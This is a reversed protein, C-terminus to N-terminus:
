SYGVLVGGHGEGTLQFGSAAYSGILSLMASRTGDSVTLMGGAFGATPTAAFDLATLDLMDGAIFGAVPMAFLGAQDIALTGGGGLFRLTEGAGVVSAFDLEAGGAIEFIGGGSVPGAIGLTGSGVVVIGGNVLAANMTTRGAGAQVSIVGANDVTGSGGSAPGIVSDATIRLVGTNSLTASHIAAATDGGGLLIDDSSWTSAGDNRLTRGGDLAIGGITSQGLLRTLGPGTQLGGSIQAGALATFTGSGDLTGGTQRLPGNSDAAAAGLVLGGASLLLAAFNGGAASLDLTGGSIATSIGAYGGTVAFSGGSFLLSAGPQATIGGTSSGGANLQLTGQTMVVSGTNVLPTDLAVQGTGSVLMTGANAIGGIGSIQQGNAVISLMAGAGNLVGSNDGDSGDLDISGGNWALSYQNDLQGVQLTGGTLVFHGTVNALTHLAHTGGAYTVTPQGAFDIVADSGAYPVSGGSWQAADDFSGSQDGIWAVGSAVVYPTVIKALADADASLQAASLSLAPTCADTLRIATLLGSRALTELIPLGAVINSSSDTVLLADGAVFGTIAAPAFGSLDTVTLTAGTGGFVITQSADVAGALTLGGRILVTGDAGTIDSVM